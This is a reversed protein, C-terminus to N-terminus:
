VLSYVGMQSFNASGYDIAEEDEDYHFSFDHRPDGAIIAVVWLIGSNVAPPLLSASIAVGVLSGTQDDLVSLAVGFGSFFAIPIGSLFTKRTARNWMEFTPWTDEAMETWSCCAGIIFGLVICCVISLIENRASRKILPWDWIILGYSMGIVPGMIPSLLMSSIITTVSDIALGIGAIVSSIFLLCSYNFDWRAGQSIKDHIRKIRQIQEDIIIYPDTTTSGLFVDQVDKRTIKRGAVTDRDASSASADDSRRRRETSTIGASTADGGVATSLRSVKVLPNKQISTPIDPIESAGQGGSGRVAAESAADGPPNEAM